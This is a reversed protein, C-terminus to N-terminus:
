FGEFDLDMSLQCPKVRHKIIREELYERIKHLDWYVVNTDFPMKTDSYEKDVIVLNYKTEQIKGRILSPDPLIHVNLKLGRQQALRTYTGYTELFARKNSNQYGIILINRHSM